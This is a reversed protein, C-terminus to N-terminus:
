NEDNKDMNLQFGYWTEIDIGKCYESIIYKLFAQRSKETLILDKGLPSPYNVMWNGKANQTVTVGGLSEGREVANYISNIEETNPDLGGIWEKYDPIAAM